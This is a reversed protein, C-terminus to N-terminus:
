RAANRLPFQAATAVAARADVGWADAGLAGALRNFQNIALGGIIVAPRAEGYLQELRSMIEKVVRLQQAFSVSLGLLDPKFVGIQEALAITPVNAGLCQVDWGALQFADAVMQLGLAHSNGAVCALLIRKGNSAPVASQLLGRTMLTHAIATALHEQAVSIVNNQWKLGVDYLAPQILGLEADVLSGGQALCADFLSEAGRRDGALLAAEFAETERSATPTLEGTAPAADDAELYRTKVDQLATVVIQADTEALRGAFFAALWDLSLALHDTPVDRTALVSSLWRLYDVMPQILGFELVPRLFELHYGLDERCAERGNDGFQAYVAGHESEFRRAVADIAESRLAQFRVLGAADLATTDHNM